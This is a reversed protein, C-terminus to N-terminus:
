LRTPGLQSISWQESIFSSKRLIHFICAIYILFAFLQNFEYEDSKILFISMQYTNDRVTRHPSWLEGLALPDDM